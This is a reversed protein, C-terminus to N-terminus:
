TIATRSGVQAGSKVFIYFVNAGLVRSPFQIQEGFIVGPSNGLLRAIQPPPTIKAVGGMAIVANRDDHINFVCKNQPKILNIMSKRLTERILFLNTESDVVYHIM